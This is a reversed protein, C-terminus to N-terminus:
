DSEKLAEKKINPHDIVNMIECIKPVVDLLYSRNEGYASYCRLANYLLEREEIDLHLDIGGDNKERFKM